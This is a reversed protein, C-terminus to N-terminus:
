TIREFYRIMETRMATDPLPGYLAGMNEEMHDVRSTAPIACTVAPHSIVFKLFYQAWNECGIEAAWPPLPQTGVRRFLGGTQFPRNIIVAKGHEQALPLLEHEAERDAINYTFQVFDFPQNEIARRMEAHRRGHSTTIGIHQLRRQSKWELLTELHVKWNVMNHIQMLDFQPLGWLEASANMQHIGLQRGPTWVKTASYLNQDNDLRDLCYGLVEQASGYMPSSDVLHGGRDFFRKLVALRQARGATGRGVDFTIWTGMGVAPICYRDAPVSKMVPDPAAFLAQPELAALVSLATAGKLWHRRSIAPHTSM